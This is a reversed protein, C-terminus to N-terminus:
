GGSWDFPPEFGLLVLASNQSCERLAPFFQAFMAFFGSGPPYAPALNTRFTDMSAAPIAGAYFSGLALVLVALIGYQVKITWGAGIFV